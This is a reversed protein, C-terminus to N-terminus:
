KEQKFWIATATGERRPGWVCFGADQRILCFTDDALTNPDPDQTVSTFEGVRTMTGEPLLRVGNWAIGVVSDGSTAIAFGGGVCHWPPAVVFPTCDATTAFLFEPTQTPLATEKEVGRALLLILVFALLLSLSLLVRVLVRIRVASLSRNNSAM